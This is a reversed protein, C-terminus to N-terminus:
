YVDGKRALLKGVLHGGIFGTAGTVFYTMDSGSRRRGGAAAILYGRSRMTGIPARTSLGNQWRGHHRLDLLLRAHLHVSAAATPVSGM